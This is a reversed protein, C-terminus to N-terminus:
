PAAPEDPKTKRLRKECEIALVKKDLQEKWRQLVDDAEKISHVVAKEETANLRCSLLWCPEKRVVVGEFAGTEYQLGYKRVLREIQETESM